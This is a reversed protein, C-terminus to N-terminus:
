ARRVLPEEVGFAMIAAGLLGVAAGLLTAPALGLPATLAAILFPGGTSGLDSVVRWVGLFEARAGEPAFDAGLRQIIGTGLGNGLGSLLAV